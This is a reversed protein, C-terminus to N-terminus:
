HSAFNHPQLQLYLRSIGLCQRDSVAQQYQEAEQELETGRKRAKELEARLYELRKEVTAKAETSEQGILAPGILKFVKEGKSDAIEIEQM